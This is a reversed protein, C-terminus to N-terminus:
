ASSDQMASPRGRIVMFVKRGEPAESLKRVADGVPLVATKIIKGRLAGIEKLRLLCKRCSWLFALSLISNIIM